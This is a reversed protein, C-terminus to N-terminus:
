HQNLRQQTTPSMKQTPPSMTPVQPFIPIGTTEAYRFVAWMGKRGEVRRVVCEDLFQRYVPYPDQLFELDFLLSDAQAKPM